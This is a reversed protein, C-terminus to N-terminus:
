GLGAGSLAVGGDGPVFVGAVLRLTTPTSDGRCWEMEEGFLERVSACVDFGYAELSPRVADPHACERGDLRRCRGCLLCEGSFGFALGGCRREIDRLRREMERRLPRVEAMLQRYDMGAPWPYRAMVIMATDYVAMREEVDYGFPPCCWLRGYNACARCAAECAAAARFREMYEKLPLTATSVSAKDSM